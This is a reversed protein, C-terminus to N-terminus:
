QKTERIANQDVWTLHEALASFEERDVCSFDLTGKSYSIRILGFGYLLANCQADSFVASMAEAALKEDETM